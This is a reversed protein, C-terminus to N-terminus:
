GQRIKASPHLRRPLSCDRRGCSRRHGLIIRSRWSSEQELPLRAHNDSRDSFALTHYASSSGVAQSYLYLYSRSMYGRACKSLSLSATSLGISWSERMKCALLNMSRPPTRYLSIPCTGDIFCTGSVFDFYRYWPQLLINSQTCQPLCQYPRVLQQSEAKRVIDRLIGKFQRLPIM